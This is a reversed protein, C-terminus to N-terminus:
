FDIVEWYAEKPEMERDFLMPYDGRGRVPMNHLWTYSDSVAWFTVSKVVDKNARLCEFYDKYFRAQEQETRRDFARTWPTQHLAGEGHYNTYVTLDLETIHVELGLSAFLDISAQIDEVTTEDMSWHAQMGVVDIPVGNEIMEKLMAYTKMRKLSDTLHYDNYVLKLDPDLARATRFAHWIFEKGAIRYLPSDRFQEDANDSIAENVVDWCFVDGKFHPVVAKIHDEIRQLLTASDVDNGAEDTYFFRPLSAHWVLTHGRVKQGNRRAVEIYRDAREFNHTFDSLLTGAMKMDNEATISNFHKAVMSSAQGRFQASSIAVGVDFYDAFVEKLAPIVKASTAYMGITAGVFGGASHTSLNKVDVGGAVEQWDGDGFCVYFTGKDKNVSIKMGVAAQESGAPVPLTAVRQIDGRETRDLTIVMKGEEMTKGLVINFRENQFYVLGALKRETSPVFNFRTEAEFVQHQQRKGLYAPNDMDYISRPLADIVMQGDKPRWWDGRPTRIMSWEFDLASKDFEDRWTFNGTLYPYGTGPLLGKKRVVTPVAKGQELVVPYGDKWSVPLLFTERGTNYFDDEYPRCALFVGWWQGTHDQLFDLHGTTTIKDPRVPPLDRQTLIPNIPNSLYPGKINDARLAVESHQEWTGGEAAILHYKGDIKYLHPGEIYQPQPLWDLSEEILVTMEGVTEDKETDYERLVIMKHNPFKLVPPDTRHVIYAKGDDDFFFSPDIDYVEPLLIPESWVGSHPDKTKVVFNWVGDTSTTIMYFTDNHPNYEIAPAYIGRSHRLGALELQSPRNLVHGIPTWNVLDKSHFIPVGPFYGFSSNVMYYDEGKRTISPDPWFGAVIPNIYEKAPNYPTNFRTDNGTYEFYDFIAKNEAPIPVALPRIGMRPTQGPQGPQGGNPRAPQQPSVWVPAGPPTWTPGGPQGPAAQPPQGSASLAAGLLPVFLLTFLSKKM